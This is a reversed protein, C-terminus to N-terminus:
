PTVAWCIEHMQGPPPQLAGHTLPREPTGRPIEKGKETSSAPFLLLTHEQPGRWDKGVHRSM